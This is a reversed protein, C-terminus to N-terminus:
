VIPISREVVLKTKLGPTDIMSQLDDINTMSADIDNISLIKDNVKLVNSYDKHIKNVIINHQNDNSAKFDFGFGDMERSVGVLVNEVGRELKFIAETKDLNLLIFQVNEPKIDIVSDDNIALIRDGTQLKNWKEQIIKVIKPGELTSQVRFGLGKPCTGFMVTFTRHEIAKHEELLTEKNQTKRFCCLKDFCSSSAVQSRTSM